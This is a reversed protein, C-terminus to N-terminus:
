LVIGDFSSILALFEDKKNNTLIKCDQHNSYDLGNVGDIKSYKDNSYEEDKLTSTLIIQGDIKKYIDLMKDEKATSLEGDRFSDIIMPYDHKLLKRLAIVKCFYFEQGESGSFTSGNKTFIDEFVLNGSPDIKKYLGNMEDLLNGDFSKREEKLTEDM